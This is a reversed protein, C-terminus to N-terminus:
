ETAHDLILFRKVFSLEGFMQVQETMEPWIFESKGGSLASPQFHHEQQDLKEKQMQPESIPVWIDSINTHAAAMSGDSTRCWSPQFHHVHQDLKGEQIQPETKPVLLDSRRTHAAAMSGGSTQCRSPQFHHVHQDLKGEQIQLETKPVLLVSRCTHAAAMSGGSTQCRSPQFHHVHQDFKGEQIQPETKPVLLVSRSTHAAAISGGSTQCRLARPSSPVDCTSNFLVDLERPIIVPLVNNNMELNVAAKGVCNGESRPTSTIKVCKKQASSPTNARPPTDPIHEPPFMGENSPGTNSISTGPASGQSSKPLSSMAVLKETDQFVFAGSRSTFQPVNLTNDGQVSNLYVLIM